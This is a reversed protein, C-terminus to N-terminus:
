GPRSKAVFREAAQAAGQNVFEEMRSLVTAAPAPRPCRRLLAVHSDGAEVLDDICQDGFRSRVFWSAAANADVEMPISNYLEGGGIIEGAENRPVGVASEDMVRLARAHLDELLAPDDADFQLSHELEHRTLAAVAVPSRTTWVAVRRLPRVPESNALALDDGFAVVDGDENIFDGRPWTKAQFDTSSREGGFAYLIADGPDIGADQLAASWTAALPHDPSVAALGV